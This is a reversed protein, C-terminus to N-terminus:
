VRVQCSIEPCFSFKFRMPTTPTATREDTLIAKEQLTNLEASPQFTELPATLGTTESVM